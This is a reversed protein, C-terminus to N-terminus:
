YIIIKKQIRSIDGDKNVVNMRILYVGTAPLMYNDHTSNLPLTNIGPHIKGTLTTEWVKRGAINYIAFTLETIDVSQVTYVIIQNICYFDTRGSLNSKIIHFIQNSTSHVPLDSIDLPISDNTRNKYRTFQTSGTSNTYSESLPLSVPPILLVVPTSLNNYVTYGDYRQGSILTDNSYIEELKYTTGSKVWKYFGLSDGPPGTVLLIDKLMIPFQFPLCFDTWSKPKLTIGYPRRLSTTHGEGFSLRLGEKVKCWILRGPVFNFHQKTTDSYEMWNNSESPDPDYFRFLRIKCIDYEWTESTSQDFIKDLASDNLTAAVRLPMWELDPISYTETYDTKVCRSVNVTDYNIGDNVVLLARVGYAQNIVGTANRIVGEYNATDSSLIVDDVHDYGKDGRGYMFQCQVNSINDSVTFDTSIDSGIDVQEDHAAYNIVPTTTDALVLFPYGTLDDIGIPASVVKDVGDVSFGYVVHIDGNIDQYLGLDNETIGQPLNTYPLELMFDPILYNNRCFKFSLADILVLGHPLPETRHYARLTDREPGSFDNIERLVINGNAAEIVEGNTGTNHFFTVVQWTFSPINVV